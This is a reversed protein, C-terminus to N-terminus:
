KEVEELKAVTAAIAEERKRYVGRIIESTWGSEPPNQEWYVLKEALVEPSSTITDFVTPEVFDATFSIEGCSNYRHRSDGFIGPTYATVDTSKCLKCRLNSM